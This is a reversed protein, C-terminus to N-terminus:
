QASSLAFTLKSGPPLLVRAGSAIAMAPPVAKPHKGFIGTVSSVTNMASQVSSQASGSVNVSNSHVSTTTGGVTLSSLQATWGSGSQALIVIAADGQPITVGNGADVARSVSARYQKGAPDHSSDVADIMQVEVSTGPNLVLSPQPSGNPNGAGTAAPQVAGASASSSATSTASYAAREGIMRKTDAVDVTAPGPVSASEQNRNAGPLFYRVRYFQKDKGGLVQMTHHDDLWVNFYGPLWYFRYFHHQDVYADGPGGNIHSTTFHFVHQSDPSFQVDSIEPYSGKDIGDVMLTFANESGEAATRAGVYAFHKSDASFVIHTVARFVPGPKGNLSVQATQGSSGAGAMKVSAVRVGDPSVVGDDGLVQDDKILQMNGYLGGHYVVHGDPTLQLTKKAGDSGPPRQISHVTAFKKGDLVAFSSTDASAAYAMHKGDRSFQLTNLDVEDYADSEKDGDIVFLKSTQAARMTYIVHGDPAFRIDQFAAYEQGPKGNVVLSVGGQAGHLYAITKGDPSMWVGTQQATTSYVIKGDILVVNTGSGNGSNIATYAIHSADPSVLVSRGIADTGIGSSVPGAKGDVVLTYKGYTPAAVYILHRGDDSFFMHGIQKYKPAPVGDVVVWSDGSNDRMMFALHDGEKSFLLSATSDVQGSAIEKGDEVVVSGQNGKQGVFAFHKGDPSFVIPNNPTMNFPAPQNNDSLRATVLPPVGTYPGYEKGDVVAFWDSSRRAAYAWHKGDATVVPPVTLIQDYKEGPKGDVYAAM